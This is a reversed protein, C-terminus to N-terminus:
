EWVRHEGIKFKLVKCPNNEQYILNQIREMKEFDEAKYGGKDIFTNELDGDGLGYDLDCWVDHPMPFDAETALNSADYEDKAQQADKETLYVAETWSRYDDYSGSSAELLYVVPTGTEDLELFNTTKHETM